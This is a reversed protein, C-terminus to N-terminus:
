PRDTAPVSADPPTAAWSALLRLADESPSGPAATYITLRLDSQEETPLDLTCYSLDLSGVVPDVRGEDTLEVPLIGVEPAAGAYVKAGLSSALLQVGLCAGFYPVGAAVAKRSM